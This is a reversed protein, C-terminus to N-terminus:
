ACENAPLPLPGPCGSGVRPDLGTWTRVSQPEKGLRCGPVAEFFACSGAGVKPLWPHPRVQSQFDCEGGPQPGWADPQCSSPGAGCSGAAWPAGHGRRSAAKARNCSGQRTFIASGSVPLPARATRCSTPSPCGSAVRRSPCEVDETATVSGAPSPVAGHGAGRCRGAKALRAM